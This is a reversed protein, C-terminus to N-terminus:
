SSPPTAPVLPTFYPYRLRASSYAPSEGKQGGEGDPLGAGLAASESPHVPQSLVISSSQTRRPVNWRQCECQTLHTSHPRTAAGGGCGGLGRVVSSFSAPIRGLVTRLGGAGTPSNQKSRAGPSSGSTVLKSATSPTTPLGLFIQHTSCRLCYERMPSWGTVRNSCYANKSLTASLLNYMSRLFGPNIGSTGRINRGM